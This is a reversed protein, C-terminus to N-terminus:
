EETWSSRWAAQAEAISQEHRKKQYDRGLAKLRAFLSRIKSRAAAVAPDAFEIEALRLYIAVIHMLANGNSEEASETEAANSSTEVLLNLLNPAGARAESGEAKTAAELVPEPLTQPLIQAQQLLRNAAHSTAKLEAVIAHELEERWHALHSPTLSRPEPPTSTAFTPNVTLSAPNPQSSTDATANETGLAPDGVAPDGAAVDGLLADLSVPDIEPDDLLVPVHLQALIEEQVQLGLNRLRQQLQQRQSYPLRLFAEPYGQTCVHYSALILQQRVTQGLVVLYASYASYLEDAIASTAKNLAAIEQAIREITGVM